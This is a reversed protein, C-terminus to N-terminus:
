PWPNELGSKVWIKKDEERFEVCKERELGEMRETFDGYGSWRFGEIKWWFGDFKKGKLKREENFGMEEKIKWKWTKKREWKEWRWVWVKWLEMKESKSKLNWKKKWIEGSNVERKEFKENELM